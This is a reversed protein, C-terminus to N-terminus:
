EAAHRVALFEPRQIPALQGLGDQIDLAATYFPVGDPDSPAAEGHLVALVATQPLSERLVLHFRMVGETDLGVIGDNVSELLLRTREELESREQLERLTAQKKRKPMLIQGSTLNM